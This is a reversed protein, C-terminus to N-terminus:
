TGVTFFFIVVWTANVEKLGRRSDSLFGLLMGSDLLHADLCIPKYMEFLSYMHVFILFINKIEAKVTFDKILDASLILDLFSKAFRNQHFSPSFVAMVFIRCQSTWTQVLVEPWKKPIKPCTVRVAQGTM